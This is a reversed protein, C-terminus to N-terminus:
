IVELQIKFYGRFAVLSFIFYIYAAPTFWGVGTLLSYGLLVWLAGKVLLTWKRLHDRKLRLCALHVAGALTYVLGLFIPPLSDFLKWADPNRQYLYRGGIMMVLGVILCCSANQIELLRHDTSRIVDAIREELWEGTLLKKPEVIDGTLLYM